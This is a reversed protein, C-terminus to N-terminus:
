SNARLFRVFEDLTKREERTLRAFSESKAAFRSARERVDPSVNSVAGALVALRAQPIQYLNSLRYILLPTPKYHPDRELAVAEDRSVELTKALSELSYGHYLRLRRVVEMFAYRIASEDEGATAAAAPSAGVAPLAATFRVSVRRNLARAIRDLMTLSHGDYDAQELRSIVSQTTDVLEALEAQTLGAQRRAEYILQAVEANVREEELQAQRVPNHGVHRQRLAEVASRQGRRASMPRCRGIVANGDGIDDTNSSNLAARNCFGSSSTEDCSIRGM